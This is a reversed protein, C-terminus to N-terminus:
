TMEAGTRSFIEAVHVPYDGALVDSEPWIRVSATRNVSLNPM